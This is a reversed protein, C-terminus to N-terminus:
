QGGQKLRDLLQQPAIGAKAAAANIRDQTIAGFTPHNLIVGAHQQQQQGYQKSLRDRGAQMIQQVTDLQRRFQPESQKTNLSAISNNIKAGEADSLAGMGRMSQIGQLFSQSQLQDILAQTNSAESGPANPLSAYIGGVTSSLGPSSSIKAVTDLANDINAITSQAQTSNDRQLQDRKFQADQLQGQIKQRNIANTERGLQANLAKIQTDARKIDLDQSRTDIQSSINNIDAQTKAQQLPQNEQNNQDTSINGFSRAFNDPGMASALFVGAAHTATTPDKQVLSRLVQTSQLDAPSGGNQLAQEQQGLVQDALDPRGSQLASFVQSAVGIKQKQQDQNLLGFAQGAAKAQAPNRLTYNAYDQATPNPNSTLKSLDQQQRQMQNLQYQHMQQDQEAGIVGAGAKLGGLLAGAPDVQAQMGTYNIPNVPGM